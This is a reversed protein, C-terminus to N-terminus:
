ENILRTKAEDSSLGAIILKMRKTLDNSANELDYTITANMEMTAKITSDDDARSVINTLRLTDDHIGLEKDTGYLLKDRFISILYAITTKRDYLLSSINISGKLDIDNTLDGIKKNGDINIVEGALSVTSGIMM